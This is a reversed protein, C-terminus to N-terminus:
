SILFNYLLKICVQIGTKYIIKLTRVQGVGVMDELFEIIDKVLEQGGETKQGMEGIAFIRFSSDCNVL